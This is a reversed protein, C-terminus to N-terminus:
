KCHGIFIKVERPSDRFLVVHAECLMRPVDDIAGNALASLQSFSRKWHNVVEGQEIVYNKMHGMTAQHREEVEILQMREKKVREKCIAMTEEVQHEIGNVQIQLDQLRRM